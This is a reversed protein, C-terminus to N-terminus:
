APPNKFTKIVNVSPNGDASEVKGNVTVTANNTLTSIQNVSQNKMAATINGSSISKNIDTLKNSVASVNNALSKVEGTATNITNLVSGVAARGEAITAQVQAMAGQATAVGAQITSGAAKATAIAGSVAPMDPIIGKVLKSISPLSIKPIISKIRAVAGSLLRKPANVVNGLKDVASQVGNSFTSNFKWSSPTILNGVQVNNLPLKRKIANFKGNVTSKVSSTAKALQTLQSLANSTSPGFGSPTYLNLNSKALNDMRSLMSLMRPPMKHKANPAISSNPEPEYGLLGVSDSFDQYTNPNSAKLQELVDPHSYFMAEDWWKDFWLPNMASLGIPVTFVPNPNFEATCPDDLQTFFDVKSGIPNSSFNTSYFARTVGFENTYQPITYGPIMVDTNYLDFTRITQEAM